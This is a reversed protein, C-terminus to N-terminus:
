YILTAGIKYLEVTYDGGDITSEQDTVKASAFLSLFEAPADYDVRVEIAAVDEEQSTPVGAVLIPDQTEIMQFTGEVGVRVSDLASYTLGLGLYDTHEFTGSATTAPRAFNRANGIVAIKDTASWFLEVDYSFENLDDNLEDSQVSLIGVGASLSLRDAIRNEIGVLGQYSDAADELGDGDKVGISGQAFVDSRDSLDYGFRLSGEHEDWDNLGDAQYEKSGFAYGITGSVRDSLKRSLAASLDHREYDTRDGVSYDIDRVDRYSQDLQLVFGGPTEFNLGVSEGWDEHDLDDFEDYREALAWVYIDAQWSPMERTVRADITAAFSTDDQEAGDSLSVNSDSRVDLSFSPRILWDEFTIGEGPAASGMSAVMSGALVMGACVWQKSM